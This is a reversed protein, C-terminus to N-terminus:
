LDKPWFMTNVPITAWVSEPLDEEPYADVLNSVTSLPLSAPLKDYHFSLMRGDGAAAVFSAVPGLTLPQAFGSAKLTRLITLSERSLNNEIDLYLPLDIMVIGDPSLIRKVMTYFELSYLRSLDPGNPFPLDILILDYRNGKHTRLFSIADGIIVEMNPPLNKLVGENLGVMVNNESAWKLMVSDLEIQTVKKLPLKKLEKLLLGDGGGLILVSEPSRGLLNLSGHVMTEHYLATSHLDIQPKRNLYLTANGPVALEPFPPEIMLDITQYPTRLRELSGYRDIVRYLHSNFLDSFSDIRTRSYSNKVTLLEIKPYVRAVAFLVLLPVFILALHRSRTKQDLILVYLGVIQLIGVFFLQHGFPVALDIMVVLIIGAILSGFYNMMLIFEQSRKKELQLLLPLQAGGLIGGLFSLVGTVTLCYVLGERRDLAAGPAAVQLYIFICVLQIVPLLPLVTVSIWELFWLRKYWHVEKVRDALASGIGLGFLYPGIALCQTLVEEGTFDMMAVALLLSFSMTTASSTLAVFAHKM